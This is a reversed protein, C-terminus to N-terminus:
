AALAEGAAESIDKLHIREWRYRETLWTVGRGALTESADSLRHPELRYGSVQWTWGQRSAKRVLVPRQVYDVDVYWAITHWRLHEATHMQELCRDLERFAANFSPPLLLLRADHDGTSLVTSASLADRYRSLM